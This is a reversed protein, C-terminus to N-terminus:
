ARVTSQSDARNSHYAANKGGVCSEQAMPDSGRVQASVQPPETETVFFKHTVSARRGPFGLWKAVLRGSDRPPAV